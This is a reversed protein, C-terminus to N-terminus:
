WEKRDESSTMDLIEKLREDNETIALFGLLAEFGTALRYEHRAANKAKNNTKTNEARRVIGSEVDSLLPMIRECMTAQARASIYERELKSLEGGKADHRALLMKRVYASHVADGLYALASSSLLLAKDKEM